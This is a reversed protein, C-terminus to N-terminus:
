AWELLDMRKRALTRPPPPPGLGLHTLIKEIGIRLRDFTGRHAEAQWRM